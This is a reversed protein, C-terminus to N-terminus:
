QLKTRPACNKERMSDDSDSESDSFVDESVDSLNDSLLEPVIV